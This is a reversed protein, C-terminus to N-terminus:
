IISIELAALFDVDFDINMRFPLATTNLLTFYFQVVKDPHNYMTTVNYYGQYKNLMNHSSQNVFDKM